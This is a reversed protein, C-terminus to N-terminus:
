GTSRAAAQKRFEVTPLGGAGWDDLEVEQIIVYTWAPPKNLVDALVDTVGKILAAKQAPTTGEKTIQITVIPM